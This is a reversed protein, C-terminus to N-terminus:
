IVYFGAEETQEEEWDLLDQLTINDVIDNVAKGMKDWVRNIVSAKEMENSTDSSLSMLDGETQRLIMGVTYEEPTKKLLYGGQM